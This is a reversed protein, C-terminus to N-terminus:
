RTPNCFQARARRAAERPDLGAARLEDTREALHFSVERAIDREVRGPRLANALRRLWAM